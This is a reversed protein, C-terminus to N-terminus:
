PLITENSDPTNRGKAKNGKVNKKTAGAKPIETEDSQFIVVKPSTASDTEGLVAYVRFPISAKQHLEGALEVLAKLQDKRTKAAEILAQMNKRNPNKDSDTVM